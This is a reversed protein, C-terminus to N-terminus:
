STRWQAAVGATQERCQRSCHAKKSKLPKESSTWQRVAEELADVARTIKRRPKRSISTRRKEIHKAWPDDRGCWMSLSDANQLLVTVCRNGDYREDAVFRQMRAVSM